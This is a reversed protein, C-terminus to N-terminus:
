GLPGRARTELWAQLERECTKKQLNFVPVGALSALAIATGPEGTDRTRTTVSDAGDATWCILCAAPSRLDAGLALHASRAHLAQVYEECQAWAPHVRQALGYAALTAGTRKSSHKNYGAWPLWVELRETTVARHGAEFAAEAGLTGGTRLGWGARALEGALEVMRSLVPLPTSRAGMGVYYSVNSRASRGAMQRQVSIYRRGNLDIGALIQKSNETLTLIILRSM